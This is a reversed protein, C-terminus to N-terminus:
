ITDALQQIDLYSYESVDTIDVNHIVLMNDDVVEVEIVLQVLPEDDADDLETCLWVVVVEVEDDLMGYLLEVLVARYETEDLEDVFETEVVDLVLIDVEDDLETHIQVEDVETAENHEFEDVLIVEDVEVEAEDIVVLDLIKEVEVEDFQM